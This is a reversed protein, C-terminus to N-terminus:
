PQMRPNADYIVKYEGDIEDIILDKYVQKGIYKMSNKQPTTYDAIPKFGKRQKDVAYVIDGLGAPETGDKKIKIKYVKNM